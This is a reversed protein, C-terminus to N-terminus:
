SDNFITLFLNNCYKQFSNKRVRIFQTLVLKDIPFLDFAKLKKILKRANLKEGTDILLKEDESEIVYLACIIIYSRYVPGPFLRHARTLDRLKALCYSTPCGGFRLNVRSIEL